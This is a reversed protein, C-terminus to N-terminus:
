ITPQDYISQKKETARIVLFKGDLLSAGPTRKLVEGTNRDPSRRIAEASIVSAVTNTNKQYQILANTTEMRRNVRSRVTVSQLDESQEALFVMVDEPNAKAEVSDIIVSAYGSFSVTVSYRGKPVKMLFRGDIDTFASKLNGVKILAGVIPQNNKNFVKGSIKEVQALTVNSLLLVIWGLFAYKLYNTKSM